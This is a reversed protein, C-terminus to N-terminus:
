IPINNTFCTESLNNIYNKYAKFAELETKYVGVQKRVGNAVSVTRYKNLTKIYYIYPYKSSKNKRNPNILNIQQTVFRLNKYHNNLRNGDKHDVVLGEKEGGVFYECVLKHPYFDYCKGDKCCVFHYYQNGVSKRNSLGLKLVRVKNFKTSIANGYNSIQYDEFGKIKKWKEM